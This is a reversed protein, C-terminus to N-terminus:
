LLVYHHPAMARVRTTSCRAPFMPTARRCARWWRRPGAIALVSDALRFCAHTTCSVITTPSYASTLPQLAPMPSCGPPCLSTEPRQPLPTFCAARTHTCPRPCHCRLQLHSSALQRHLAAHAPALRLVLPLPPHSNTQPAPPSCFIGFLGAGLGILDLVAPLVDWIVHGM